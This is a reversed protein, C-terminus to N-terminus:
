PISTNPIIISIPMLIPMLAPTLMAGTCKPANAIADTSADTKAYAVTGACQLLVNYVMYMYTSNAAYVWEDLHYNAM